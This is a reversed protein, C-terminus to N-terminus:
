QRLAACKKLRSPSKQIHLIVIFLDADTGVLFELHDADGILNPSEDPFAANVIADDKDDGLM